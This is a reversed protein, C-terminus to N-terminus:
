LLARAEAGSRARRSAVRAVPIVARGQAAAGGPSLAWPRAGLGSALIGFGGGSLRHTEMVVPLVSAVAGLFARATIVTSAASVHVHAIVFGRRALEAESLVGSDAIM